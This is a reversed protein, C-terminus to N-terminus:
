LEDAQQRILKKPAQALWAERVLGRLTETPVESLRAELGLFSRRSDMRRVASFCKPDAAAAAHASEETICFVATSEDRGMGLFTKGAVQWLPVRFRFHQKETVGPLATAWSRLEDTGTLETMIQM